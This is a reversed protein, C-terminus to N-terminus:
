DCYIHITYDGKEEMAFGFLRSVGDLEVELKYDGLPWSTNYRYYQLIYPDGTDIFTKDLQAEVPLATTTNPRFLDVVLDGQNKGAMVINLDTDGRKIDFVIICGLEEDNYGEDVDIVVDPGRSVLFDAIFAPGDEDEVQYWEGDVALVALIEGARAQRVVDCNTGPCSRLNAGDNVVVNFLVEGTANSSSANSTTSDEPNCANTAALFLIDPTLTNNPIQVVTAAVLGMYEYLNIEAGSSTRAFTERGLASMDAPDDSEVAELAQALLDCDYETGGTGEQWDEALAAVSLFSLMGVLLIRKWM